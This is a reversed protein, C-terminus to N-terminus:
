NAISNLYILVKSQNDKLKKKALQKRDEDM